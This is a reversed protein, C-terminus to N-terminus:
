SHLGASDLYWKSETTGDWIIFVFRNNPVDFKLTVRAGTRIGGILNIASGDKARMWKTAETSWLETSGILTAPTYNADIESLGYEHQIVEPEKFAGNRRDIVFLTNPTDVIARTNGSLTNYIIDISGTSGSVAEVVRNSNVPNVSFSGSINESVYVQNDYSSTRQGFYVSAKGYSDFHCGVLTLNKIASALLGNPQNFLGSNIAKCGIMTIDSAETLFFMGTECDYCSCAEFLINKAPYADFIHEGGFRFGYNCRYAVCNIFNINECNDKIEFTFQKLYNARCNEFSSNNVRTLIVGWPCNTSGSWDSRNANFECNTIKINEGAEGTPSTDSSYRMIAGNMINNFKCNNVTFNTADRAYIACQVVGGDTQNELNFTVNDIVVGYTDSIIFVNSTDKAKIVSGGSGIIYCGSGITVGGVLYTGSPIYGIREGNHLATAWAIFAGTDDTIGDGIAGYLTPTIVPSYSGILNGAVLVKYEDGEPTKFPIYDFESTLSQPVKSYTIPKDSNIIFEDSKVNYDGTIDIQEKQHYLHITNNDGNDEYGVASNGRWVSLNNHDSNVIVGVPAHANCRLHDLSTYPANIEFCCEGIVSSISYLYVNSGAVRGTGNIEAGKTGANQILLNTIQCDDTVDIVFPIDGSTVLIDNFVGSGFTIDIVNLDRVQVEANGDFGIDHMSITELTGNILPETAGGKQVLVSTYRGDGYLGINGSLEVSSVLYKGNPFYVAGGGLENVYDICGQITATDDTTGDGSAPALNNPPFKVNVMFTSLISQLIPAVMETTFQKEVLEPIENVADVTENLKKVVKALLEYYSLSDDYVLPLIKQVWYHLRRVM